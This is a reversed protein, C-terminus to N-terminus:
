LISLRWFYLSAVSCYPSFKERYIEFDKKSLSELGYLKMIGRRIALDGYSFVNERHLSFILLMEATWIGIGDLSVLKKIIEEDSLKHLNDYDIEGSLSSEAIGMIYSAKKMSMGCSKITDIGVEKIKEATIVGELIDYIRKIVTNAAKTSIQQAIVSEILAPFIQPNVSREIHGINKIAERLKEDKKSLYDIEKKGYQFIEM